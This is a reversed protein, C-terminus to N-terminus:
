KQSNPQLDNKSDGSSDSPASAIIRGSDNIVIQKITEIMHTSVPYESDENFCTTGDCHNFRAADMPDAWIGYVSIKTTLIPKNKPTFLYVYRDQIAAYTQGNIGSFPTFGMFPIRDISVIDYPRSGISIPGIKTILDQQYLEVPEPLQQTSRLVKCGTDIGCCVSSDTLEVDLCGLSQSVNNSISRGKNLDERILKARVVNIQFYLQRLSILDDDSSQGGRLTNLIDYAIENLTAM